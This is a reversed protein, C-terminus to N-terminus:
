NKIEWMEYITECNSCKFIWKRCGDEPNFGIQELPINQGFCVHCTLESM